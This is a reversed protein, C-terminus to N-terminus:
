LWHQQRWSRKEPRSVLVSVKVQPRSVLVLFKARLDRSRSRSRLRLDRAWSRQGWTERGLGLGKGIVDPSQSKYAHSSKAAFIWANKVCLLVWYEYDEPSHWYKLKISYDPIIITYLTLHWFGRGVGKPRLFPRPFVSVWAKLELGLGLGTVSSSSLERSELGHDRSWM